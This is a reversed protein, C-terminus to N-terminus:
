QPVRVLQGRVVGGPNLTSHANFYFGAPNAVIENVIDFPTVSINSKTFSGSGNALTVEGAALTTSVVISGNSGAPARHIHAINIPTGGPFGSLNVVFTATAATVNNSADRTVDFVVTANGAGNSEANSIPPVENSARLDATFTVRNPTGPGTTGGCASALTALALVTVASRMMTPMEKM